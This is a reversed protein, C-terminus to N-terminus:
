FDHSEWSLTDVGPLTEPSLLPVVRSLPPPLFQQSNDNRSLNKKGFTYSYVFFFKAGVLQCQSVGPYFSKIQDMDGADQWWPAPNDGALPSQFREVRSTYGIADHGSATARFGATQNRSRNSAGYSRVSGEIPIETLMMSKALRFFLSSIKGLVQGSGNKNKSIFPFYKM